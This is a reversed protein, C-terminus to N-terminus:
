KFFSRTQKKIQDAIQQNRNIVVPIKTKKQFVKEFFDDVNLDSIRKTGDYVRDLEKRIEPPYFVQIILDEFAIIDSISAVNCGIKTKISNKDWFDSCWKDIATDGRSVCYAKTFKGLERSHLYDEKEFLPLWFHSWQLCLVPKDDRSSLMKLFLKILFSDLETISEFLLNSQKPLEPSLSLYKARIGNLSGQLSNVWQMSLLYDNGKKEVVKASLLELLAKHIAQYSINGSSKSIKNFIQKASLPFEQSLISIIQDKTSSAGDLPPLTPLNNM